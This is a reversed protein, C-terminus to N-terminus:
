INRYGRPGGLMLHTCTHQLFLAREGTPGIRRRSFRRRSGVETGNETLKRLKKVLSRRENKGLKNIKTKQLRKCILIYTITHNFRNLNKEKGNKDRKSLVRELEINRAYNHDAGFFPIVTRKRRM